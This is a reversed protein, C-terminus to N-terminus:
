SAFLCIALIKKKELLLRCVLHGRSQLESTHEESRLRPPWGVAAMMHGERDLGDAVSRLAGLLAPPVAAPQRHPIGAARRAGCVFIPLADHLSLIYFSPPSPDPSLLLPTTAHLSAAT